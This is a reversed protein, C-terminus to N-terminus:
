TTAKRAGIPQRTSHAPLLSWWLAGTLSVGGAAFIDGGARIFLLSGALSGAAVTYSGLVILGLALHQLRVNVLDSIVPVPAKGALRQYRHIWILFPVIKLSNGVLTAGVFGGLLLAGYALLWRAPEADNTFPTGIAAGVGVVAALLLCPLAAMTARGHIDLKRRSRRRFGRVIGFAWVAPGVTLVLALLVRVPVGPQFPLVSAFLTVAVATLGIAIWPLRSPRQSTLSFMPVLQESVSLITIGLWGILGLHAHASLLGLTIPFWLHYLAGVWTLGFGFAVLLGILGMAMGFHVVGRRSARALATAALISYLLFSTALLTGALAMWATDWRYAAWVFLPVAVVHIAAQLRALRYSFIHGGLVAQLLQYSAGMITTSAWGLAIAHVIAVTHPANIAVLTDGDANLLLLGATVLGIPALFLLPLVVSFPPSEAPAPRATM